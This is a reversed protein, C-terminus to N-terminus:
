SDKPQKRIGNNDHIREHMERCKKIMAFYQVSCMPRPAHSYVSHPWFKGNARLCARYMSQAIGCVESDDRDSEDAARVGASLVLFLLTVYKPQM